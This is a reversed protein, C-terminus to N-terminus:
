GPQKWAQQANGGDVLPQEPVPIPREQSDRATAFFDLLLRHVFVYGGGVKRLFLRGVTYDLFDAYNWPISGARYLVLRLVIHQICALGGYLLGQALGALLGGYLTLAVGALLGSTPGLVSTTVLGGIVGTILGAGLGWGLALRLANGASRRIGQNPRTRTEIEGATLGATFITALTTTLAAGLGGALELGPWGILKGALGFTLGIILGYLLSRWLGAKAKTWSWRITEVIEIRTPDALTGIILGFVLASTLGALLGHLMRNSLGFGLEAAVGGSLGVSAGVLLANGLIQWLGRRSGRQVASTDVALGFLLGATVGSTLGVAGGLLLGAFIGLLLGAIVGSAIGWVLGSVLGIILGVGAAYYRGQTPTLMWEPQMGEIYFVTQCRQALMRALGALWHLTQQSTYPMDMGRRQFMREVYAALLLTRRQELSVHAQVSAVPLGQYALAMINLMLPTDILEQLTPDAQLVVRVSELQGGARALYADIQTLTLPQLVIAGHLRLRATLMQYDATRSCVVLGLLGREGQFRNIATICAARQEPLVEDLGDLLPLIQDNAVWDAGIKRPVQYRASLEDVLWADLRQRQEAWSALNFVIPM